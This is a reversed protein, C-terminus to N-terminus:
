PDHFKPGIYRKKTRVDDRSEIGASQLNKYKPLRMSLLLIM